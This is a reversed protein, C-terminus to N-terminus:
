RIKSAKKVKKILHNALGLLELATEIEDKYNHQHARPNRIGTMVGATIEMYGQQENKDTDTKLKNLKLLPKKPSFVNHMLDSGDLSSNTKKKVINNLCKFAEEIASSYHKDIFLKETSVRLEEDDVLQFYVDESEKFFLDFGLDRAESQIALAKSHVM